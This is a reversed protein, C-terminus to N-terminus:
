FRTEIVDRALAFVDDIMGKTLKGTQTNQRSPHYCGLLVRGDPLEVRAGHGFAPRRAFTTGHRALLHLTADFAVKGLAAVVGVRPLADFEADFHIRCNAIERPTPKNDPPACRVAMAIFADRLRLGDDARESTPQNAFGTRHLSAMLFGSSGGAGDGTFVRGTRNAGHAAPALGVILLRARPDGFGPVPRGWYVDDRYARRKERAVRAGYARLRPCRECAVIAQQANLLAQAVLRPMREAAGHARRRPVRVGAPIGAHELRRRERSLTRAFAPRHAGADPRVGADPERVLDPRLRPLLAAPAHLRRSERPRQRRARRPVRPVRPARRRQGGHERRAHAPREPAHRRGGSLRRYENAICSAREEFKAGDAATWWDRLNGEPDYKRGQDDFGHTLEHGVVAGAAGYNVAPDREGQYFPPQLIGAPFNINNRDPSYYANVTPPTMSWEGRDVPKDIKAMERRWDFANAQQRNALATAAGVTMSDYRRWTDPYGIRDVVADLKAKAAQKTEASMWDASAIDNAMSGKIDQVMGLMDAKSQPGFAEAVFAQGLAEGVAADTASVCRRWRPLQAKQGALTRGYFDFNAEDFVAPLMTASAAVLRWRLYTQLTAVPTAALLADMAKLFDPADVNLSSFAPAGGAARYGSWDFGPTLAQLQDVTMPHDTTAPNRREVPAESAEALATEFAMIAQAGAAARAPADGLLGLMRELHAVYKARLAVSPADTKTYYDRNPLGLGGQDVDAIERTADHADTDARFRFLANVGITHLGALLAPLGDLGALAAIRQLQPELPSLGGREIAATDLCAAYYDRAKREDGQGGPTELIRRLFTFNRDQLEDFRGWRQRDAPVPNARSWAGCAFAYFDTCPSAGRDIAALDLGSASPAPATASQAAAMVAALPLAVFIFAMLHRRM